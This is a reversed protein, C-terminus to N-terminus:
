GSLTPDFEIVRVPHGMAKIRRLNSSELLGPRSPYGSVVIEISRFDKAAQLTLATHNLTGLSPRTVITLKADLAAALDAMTENETLPALLGGAGEVILDEGLAKTQAVLWDFDIPRGAQVAAEAPSLPLDFRILEHAEGFQAVFDCDAPLGCQVPKVYGIGTEAVLKACVVTKGVGTDTGTVFRIM